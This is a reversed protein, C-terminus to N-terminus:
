RRIAGGAVNHCRAAIWTLLRNEAPRIEVFGDDVPPDGADPDTMGDVAGNRCSTPGVRLEDFRMWLAERRYLGYVPHSTVGDTSTALVQGSPDYTPLLGMTDIRILPPKSSFTPQAPGVVPIIEPGTVNLSTPPM